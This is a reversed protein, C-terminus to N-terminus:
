KRENEFSPLKSEIRDAEDRIFDIYNQSYCAFMEFSTRFKEVKVKKREESYM